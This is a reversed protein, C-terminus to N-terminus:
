DESTEDDDGELSIMGFLQLFRTGQVSYDCRANNSQELSICVTHISCDDLQVAADIDDLPRNISEVCANSAIDNEDAAILVYSGDYLRHMNVSSPLLRSLICDAIFAGDIREFRVSTSVKAAVVGCGIEHLEVVARFLNKFTKM